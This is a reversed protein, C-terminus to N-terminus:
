GRWPELIARAEARGLETLALLHGQRHVLALDLGRLVIARAKQRNWGLHEILARTVNEESEGATAEHNYLHAVLTRTENRKAQARRVAWQAILGHRPGFLFALVFFVGTVLAMMGGISVNVRVALLYGLIASLIAIVSAMVLMLWLRDTLLYAASAPVIVFALFLIVGVADFAAVATASVLALLAYGLLGPLFGLAAALGPDFSSLKLEKYFALVFALNVLTMPLLVLLAVPVNRGGVEATDLWVFSIEGLLVTHQDIHVNRAYVNLLVIGVAFLAPFVLGIAADDRMLRTRSLGQTLAVTLLGTLAAGIIQIVGETQSTVLWVMVIGFLISHSIADTLMSKGRLVLFTGLLASATGVLIGTAVILAPPSAIFADLM